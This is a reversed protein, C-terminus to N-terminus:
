GSVTRICMIFDTGVDGNCHNLEAKHRDEHRRKGERRQERQEVVDDLDAEIGVLEHRHPLSRRGVLGVVDADPVLDEM